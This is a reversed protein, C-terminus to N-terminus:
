PKPDARRVGSVDWQDLKESMEESVMLAKFVDDDPESVRIQGRWSNTEQYQVLATNDEAWVDFKHDDDAISITMTAVGDGEDTSIIVERM